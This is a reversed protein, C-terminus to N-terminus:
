LEIKKWQRLIHSFARTLRGSNMSFALGSLLYEAILTKPLIEAMEAVNNLHEYLPQWEEPPRGELSHAYYKKTM